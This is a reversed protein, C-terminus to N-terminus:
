GHDGRPVAVAPARAGAARLRGACMIVVAVPGPSRSASCALRAAVTAHPRPIQRLAPAPQVLAESGNSHRHAELLRMRCLGGRDRRRACVRIGCM